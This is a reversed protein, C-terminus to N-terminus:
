SEESRVAPPRSDSTTPGPLVQRLNKGIITVADTRWSECIPESAAVLTALRAPTVTITELRNGTWALVQERLGRMQEQWALGDTDAGDPLVLLLDVDSGPGSERRAVSGFLAACVVAPLLRECASSLREIFEQRARAAALVSAALVHERNLRYRYGHNTPEAIVLGHQALRSLALGLGRRSGRPALRHIQSEGLAGEVGALVHLAAADVSPVLSQLPATLDM